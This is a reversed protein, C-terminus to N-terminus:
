FRFGNLILVRELGWVIVELLYVLIIFGGGEEKEWYELWFVSFELVRVCGYSGNKFWM